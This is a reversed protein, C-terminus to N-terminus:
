LNPTLNTHLLDRAQDANGRCFFVAARYLRDQYALLKETLEKEAVLSSKAMFKLQCIAAVSDQCLWRDIIYKNLFM